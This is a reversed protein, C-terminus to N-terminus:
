EYPEWVPETKFGELILDGIPLEEKKKAVKEKKKNESMGDEKQKRTTRRLTKM